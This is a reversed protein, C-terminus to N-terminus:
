LGRSSYPNFILGEVEGEEEEWQEDLDLDDRASGVLGRVLRREGDSFEEGIEILKDLAEQITGKSFTGEEIPRELQDWFFNELESSGRPLEIPGLRRKLNRWGQLLGEDTLKKDEEIEYRHYVLSELVNQTAIFNRTEESMDGETLSDLAEANKDTWLERYADAWKEQQYREGRQFYRCDPPCDINKGRNEGCCRSCIYGGLAPCEREGKRSDCYICKDKAM